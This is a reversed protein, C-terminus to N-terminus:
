VNVGIGWNLSFHSLSGIIALKFTMLSNRRISKAQQPILLSMQFLFLRSGLLHFHSHIFSYKIYLIYTYTHINIYIYTFLHIYLRFFVNPEVCSLPCPFQPTWRTSKCSPNLLRSFVSVRLSFPLLTPQSFVIMLPMLLRIYVLLFTCKHLYTCMQPFISPLTSEFECGNERVCLCM